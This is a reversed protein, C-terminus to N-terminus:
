RGEITPLVELVHGGLEIGQWLQREMPSTYPIVLGTRGGEGGADGLEEVAAIPVVLEQEEDWPIALYMGPEIVGSVITGQVVVARRRPADYHRDAQFLATM